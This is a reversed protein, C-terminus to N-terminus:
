KIFSISFTKGTNGNTISVTTFTQSFEFYRPFVRGSPEHEWKLNLDAYKFITKLNAVNWMYRSIKYLSQTVSVFLNTVQKRAFQSMMSYLFLNYKIM